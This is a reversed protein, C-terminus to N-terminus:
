DHRGAEKEYFVLELPIQGNLKAPASGALRFGMAAYLSRAPANGAWTDLRVVKCGSQVAWDEAFAVMARGCGTRAQSPDICLTHIVLVEDDGAEYQWRAGAYEPAQVHNLIMAAGIRGDREMVFLTGEKAAGEAVRGTPYVGEVWSTSSGYKKEYRFLAAYVASVAGVDALTGKRIAYTM